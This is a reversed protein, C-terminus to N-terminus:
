KSSENDQIPGQALALGVDAHFQLDWTGENDVPGLSTVADPELLDTRGSGAFFLRIDHDRLRRGLDNLREQWLINVQRQADGEYLNGLYLAIATGNLQGYPDPGPSPINRDVGTPVHLLREDGFHSAWLRLSENTLIAVHRSCGAMRRQTEWLRERHEGFFYVGPTDEPGVVSGLKSIIFPHDDGGASQLRDFGQHFLTKVVDYDDWDVDAWAVTSLNPHRPGPLPTDSIVDVRHGMAAFAESMRLWRVTAMSWGRFDDFPKKAYVTAIRLPRRRTGAGDPM